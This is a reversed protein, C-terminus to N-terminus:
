HGQLDVSLDLAADACLRQRPGYTMFQRRSLGRDRAIIFGHSVTGDM